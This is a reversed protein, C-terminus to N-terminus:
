MQHKTSTEKCVTSILKFKYYASLIYVLSPNLLIKLQMYNNQIIYEWTDDMMM